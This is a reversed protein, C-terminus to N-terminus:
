VTDARDPEGHQRPETRPVAHHEAPLLPSAPASLEPGEEPISQPPVPPSGIAAGPERTPLAHHVTGSWREHPAPSDLRLLVALPAWGWLLLAALATVYPLLTGVPAPLLADRTYQAATLWILALPAYAIWTRM